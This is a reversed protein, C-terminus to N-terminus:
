SKNVRNSKGEHMHEECCYNHGQHIYAEAQPLHVHCIECQVMTQSPQPKKNKRAQEQRIYASLSRYLWYVLIGLAILSILQM